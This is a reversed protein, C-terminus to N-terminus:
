CGCCRRPTPSATSPSTSVRGRAGARRSEIEVPGGLWSGTSRSAACSDAPMACRARSSRSRRCIAASRCRRMAHAARHRAVSGPQRMEKEGRADAELAVKGALRELGQAALARRLLPSTLDGQLRPMCDRRARARGTSARPPSPSSISSVAMSSLQTNGRAFELTGRGAALRPLDEGALRLRRRAELTGSSRQWNVIRQGSADRKPVCRQAHRRGCQRAPCRRAARAARARARAADLWRAALARDLNAVTLTLPKARRAGNVKPAHGLQRRKACRSSKSASAPAGTIRCWSSGASISHARSTCRRRTRLTDCNLRISASDCRTRRRFQLGRRSNRRHATAIRRRARAGRRETARQLELRQRFRIAARAARRRDRDLRGSIVLVRDEIQPAFLGAIFEAAMFPVREASLTTRAIRTTGPEISSRARAAQARARPARRAHAAPRRLRLVFDGADRELKGNVTFHDFRAHPDDGIELERASAQWSASQSSGTRCTRDHRRAHRPRECRAHPLKDLFVRRAIVRLDGSVGLGAGLGELKASVFLSQGVDQSSCCPASHTSARRCRPEGGGPEAHLHQARRADGRRLLHVRAGEVEVRGNPMLEAWATFRRVLAAEDDEQPTRPASAADRAPARREGPSDRIASSRSTPRHCRSTAWRFSTTACITGPTSSSACSPRSSACADASRSRHARRARVGRQHRRPELRFARQRIAGRSRHSRHHTKRSHRTARSRARRHRAHVVVGLTGLLLLCFTVLM